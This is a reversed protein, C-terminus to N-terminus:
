CQLVIHIADLIAVLLWSIRQNHDKQAENQAYSHGVKQAKQSSFKLPCLASATPRWENTCMGPHCMLQLYM